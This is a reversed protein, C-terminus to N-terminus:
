VHIGGRRYAYVYVGVSGLPYVAAPKKPCERKFHGAKSCSYCVMPGGPRSLLPKALAPAGVSDWRALVRMGEQAEWAAKRAKEVGEMKKKAAVKLEAVRKARELRKDNSDAALADVDYEAVVAWGLESRDAVKILMQRHALADKGMPLTQKVKELALKAPGEELIRAARSM